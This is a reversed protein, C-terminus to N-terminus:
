GRKVEQPFARELQVEWDDKEDITVMRGTSPNVIDIAWSDHPRDLVTRRFGAVMLGEYHDELDQAVRNATVFDM